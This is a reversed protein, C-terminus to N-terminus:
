AAKKVNAPKSAKEAPVYINKLKEQLTEWEKTSDDQLNQLEERVQEEFALNAEFAQNFTQAESIEKFSAMRADALSTFCNTNSKLLKDFYGTQATWADVNAKSVQEFFQQIKELNLDTM